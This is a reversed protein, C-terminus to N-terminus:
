ISQVSTNRLDHISCVQWAELKIPVKNIQTPINNANELHMEDQGQLQTDSSETPKETEEEM